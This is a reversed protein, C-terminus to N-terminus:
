HILFGKGWKHNENEKGYCFIYEEAPATGSDEWRVEQVGVLDLKYRPLETSVAMLSGVMYLSRINWTGFGMDM